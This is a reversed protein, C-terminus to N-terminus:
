ITWSISGPNASTQSVTSGAWDRYNIQIQGDTVITIQSVNTGINFVSSLTSAPRFELPVYGVASSATSLSSHTIGSFTMTVQKNVRSLRFTGATLQNSAGTLVTQNYAVLGSQGAQAAGFGVAQGAVSKRVRWKFFVSAAIASWTNGSGELTTPYGASGFLVDVDTNNAALPRVIIGTTGSLSAFLSQAVDIWKNNRFVELALVDTAQIPTIFRVRKARNTTAYSGFSVGAPGYAFAVTNDSNATDSNWAFEEGNAGLNVTGSGQWEAIPVFVQGDLSDLNGVTFPATNSVSQSASDAAFAYWAEIVTTTGMYMDVAYLAINENLTRGYGIRAQVNNNIVVTSDITMNPPMKFRSVAVAAPAATSKRSVRIEASSGVRRWFGTYVTNTWALSTPTPDYSQWEGIAAGEATIGPGSVVNALTLATTGTVRVIRLEYYLADTSDYSTAFSGTANAIATVGASDSALSLKTYSGSYDSDTNTQVEVKLDGSTYGSLARQVWALKLKTNLLGVPMTWRYRVFPTGSSPTIKIATSIIGELPLEASLSTTAVAIGPASAVWNSALSSDLIVNIEGSGSGSGSTRIWRGTGATPEIISDDNGAESSASDFQFISGVGRILVCDGNKRDAAAIAKIAPIDAVSAKGQLYNADAFSQPIGSSRIWRGTGADPALVFIDDNTAASASDFQFFASLGRVLIADGNKRDAAAISKAAAIDAVSAKGQVFNANAFGLNILDSPDTPTGVTPISATEPGNIFQYERIQSM